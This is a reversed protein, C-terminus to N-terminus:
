VKGEARMHTGAEVLPTFGALRFDFLLSRIMYEDRCEGITVHVGAMKLRM